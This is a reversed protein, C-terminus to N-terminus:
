LLLLIIHHMHENISRSGFANLNNFKGIKQVQKLNNLFKDDATFKIDVNRNM